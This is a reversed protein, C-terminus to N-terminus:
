LSLAALYGLGVLGIACGALRLTVDESSTTLQLAKLALWRTSLGVAIQVMALGLLYAWLPTMEAGVISEGYAYGHFIGSAAALAAVVPLRVPRAILLAGFLVVSLSIMLEPAPLDWSLLHIVTGVLSAMVFAVPVLTGRRHLVAILGAALIFAVHDLGLVPHALGSVFGEWAM